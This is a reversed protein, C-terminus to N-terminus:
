KVRVCVCVWVCVMRLACDTYHHRFEPKHKAYCTTFVSVFVCVYVCVCVCVCVCMRCWPNSLKSDEMGWYQRNWRAYHVTVGNSDFQVTYWHSSAVDLCLDESQLLCLQLVNCWDVEWSWRVGAVWLRLILEGVASVQGTEQKLLVLVSKTPTLRLRRGAM